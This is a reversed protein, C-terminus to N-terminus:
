FKSADIFGKRFHRSLALIEKTTLKAMAGAVVQDEESLGFNAPMRPPVTTGRVMEQKVPKGDRERLMCLSPDVRWVQGARHRGRSELSKVKLSKANVKEVIGETKEGEGRGFIVKDGKKFGSM